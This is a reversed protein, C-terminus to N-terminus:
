IYDCIWRPRQERQEVMGPRSLWIGELKLAVSAPLVMWQGKETQDHCSKHAGWRLAAIVNSRSLRSISFKVPVGRHKYMKLLCRAPQGILQDVSAM